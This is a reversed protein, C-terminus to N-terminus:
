PQRLLRPQLRVAAGAWAGSRRVAGAPAHRAHGRLAAAWPARRVPRHLRGRGVPTDPQRVFQGAWCDVQRIRYIGQPVAQTTKGTAHCYVRIGTRFDRPHRDMWANIEELRRVRNWPKGSRSLEHNEGRFVCVRTEIGQHILQTYMQLAEGLPCRFNEDSHLFLTPTVAHAVFKLPSSVWGEAPKVRASVGGFRCPSYMYSWDSAGEDTIWNAISRQSVACAFRDTHGIIWNTMYGGYSGGTIGLRAPDLQPHRELVCDTFAMLDDYDVTGYRTMLFGFEDGRSDSGTPNCFFVYYGRAAWVQMEHVYSPGYAAKPGGHIVLIAPYQQGPEEHVPHIVWGQM